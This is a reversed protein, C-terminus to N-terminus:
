KRSNPAYNKRLDEIPPLILVPAPAGNMSGIPPMASMGPAQSAVGRQRVLQSDYVARVEQPTANPNKQQFAETERIAAWHRDAAAHAAAIDDVVHSTFIKADKNPNNRKFWAMRAETELADPTKNETWILGNKTNLEAKIADVEARDKPALQTKLDALRGHLPGFNGKNLDDAGQIYIGAMAKPAKAASLAGMISTQQEGNQSMNVRSVFRSYEPTGEKYGGDKAEAYLSAYAVPDNVPGRDMFALLDKKSQPRLKQSETIQQKAVEKDGVGAQILRTWADTDRADDANIQQDAQRHIALWQSADLKGKGNDFHADALDKAEQPNVKARYVLQKTLEASAIGSMRLKYESEPIDGNSYLKELHSRATETQGNMQADETNQLATRVRTAKSQQLLQIEMAEREPDAIVGKLTGIGSRVQDDNGAAAGLTGQNAASQVANKKKQGLVAQTVGESGMTAWHQVGANVAARARDSMDLNQLKDQLTSVQKQWQEPWANENNENQSQFTQQQAAHEQMMGHALNINKVDDAHQMQGAIHLGNLGLDVLGQGVAPGVTVNQAVMPVRVGTMNIPAQGDRYLPITAM